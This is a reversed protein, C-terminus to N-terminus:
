QVEAQMEKAPREQDQVVLHIQIYGHQAAALVEQSDTVTPKGTEAPVVV